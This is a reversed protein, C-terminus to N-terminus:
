GGGFPNDIAFRWSGDAQRRVVDATAGRLALPQGDLGTADLTWQACLLALDGAEVIQPPQLQFDGKLALYGGLAERIADTGRVVQGPQVVLVADPEYLEILGDLDGARFREAFLQQVQKPERAAM